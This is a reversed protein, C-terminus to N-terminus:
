AYIELIGTVSNSELQLRSLDSQLELTIVM